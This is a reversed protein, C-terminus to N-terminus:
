LSGSTNQALPIPKLADLVLAPLHPQLGERSVNALDEVTVVAQKSLFAIQEQLFNDPKKLLSPKSRLFAISINEESM